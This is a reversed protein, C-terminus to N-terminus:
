CAAPEEGARSAVCAALEAAMRRGRAGDATQMALVPWTTGDSLDLVAWPDDRGLRVAVVQAWVLRRRRLANVVVLGEADAEVRVRGFRALVASLAVTVVFLGVRDFSWARNSWPVDVLLVVAGIFVVLFGAVGYAAWRGFGPRWVHPLPPCGASPM